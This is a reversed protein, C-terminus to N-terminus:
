VLAPPAFASKRPIGAPIERGGEDERGGERQGERERVHVCVRGAIM